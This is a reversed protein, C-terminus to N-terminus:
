QNKSKNIEEEVLRVRAQLEEASPLLESVSAIRVNDYSSVGMPTNIGKFSWRVDTEDKDSCILLGITPNDDEGKILEDVANVYYNLKGAFEPDFPVVKLEVVIYSKLRIHYFLMDIKRTRGGVVLQIQRGVFAFGTGLELLFRTINKELAAELHEEKYDVPVTIFGFDYNEKTIEQALRSQAEPLRESFNSIANGQTRYLNAKLANDLTSRSWGDSICKKLYFIAEDDSKCKTIINVQHRWPVLGLAQPFDIEGDHHFQRILSQNVEHHLEGGLQHLKEITQISSFFLYWKKMAWLNTTGFGKDNPFAEQLDFSLQEVVGAGWREEAKRVVLDRGVSWNFRLKELNVKVAAKIQASLYRHKIESFWCAYDADIRFNKVKVIHPENNSIADSM